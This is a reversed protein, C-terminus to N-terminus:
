ADRRAEETPQFLATFGMMGERYHEYRVGVFQTKRGVLEDHFARVELDDTMTAHLYLDIAAKLRVIGAMVRPDDLNNTGVSRAEATASTAPADETKQFHLAVDIEEDGQLFHAGTLGFGPETDLRHLVEAVEEDHEALVEMYAGLAQMLAGAVPRLQPSAVRQQATRPGKERSWHRM